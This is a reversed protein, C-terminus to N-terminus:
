IDYTTMGTRPSRHRFCVINQAGETLARAGQDFQEM